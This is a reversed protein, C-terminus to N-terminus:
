DSGTIRRRLYTFIVTLIMPFVLMGIIGGLKFGIFIFILTFLPNIDIQKGIIKPEIFNRTITIFLYLIILGFGFMYDNKLFEIVAWPLLITGTGIVPLMDLFSVILAILMFKDIGLVLFGFVLQGFTILFLWFYGVSFKIFCEYFIEKIEIITKLYEQKIFGKVFKLLRDYDKAIYCTAVVTVVCSLLVAPIKKILFTLSNSLYSTVNLLLGSIADEYFSKYNNELNLKKLVYEIKEYINELFNKIQQGNTSLFNIIKDFQSFLFWVFFLFIAVVILYIIVSLFSACKEKSIGTKKNLFVAPKQVLYAIIIGILFPLFYSAAVSFAFYVILFWTLFYVVGVIFNHKKEMKIFFKEGGIFLIM